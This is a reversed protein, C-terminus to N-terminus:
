EHLSKHQTFRKRAGKRVDETIDKDITFLRAFFDNAFQENRAGNPLTPERSSGLRSTGCDIDIWRTVQAKDGADPKPDLIPQSNLKGVFILLCGLFKMM